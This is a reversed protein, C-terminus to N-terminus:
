DTLSHYAKFAVYGLLGGAAIVGAAPLTVTSVVTTTFGFWGAIGAAPVTSTVTAVTISATGAAFSAALISAIVKVDRSAPSAITNHTM